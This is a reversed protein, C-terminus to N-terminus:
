AHNGGATPTPKRVVPILPSTRGRIPAAPGSVPDQPGCHVPGSVPGSSRQNEPKSLTYLLARHPGPSTSLLGDDVAASLAALTRQRSLPSQDRLTRGSEGPSKWVLALVVDRDKTEQMRERDGKSPNLKVDTVRVFDGCVGRRLVVDAPPRAYSCKSVTLALTERRETESLDNHQANTTDMDRLYIGFRCSDLLASEGRAAARADSQTGYTSKQSHHLLLIAVGFRLALRELAAVELPVLGNGAGETGCLRSRGDIILLRIRGQLLELTLRLREYEPTTELTDGKVTFLPRAQGYVNMLHLREILQARAKPGFRICAQSLLLHWATEIDESALYFV